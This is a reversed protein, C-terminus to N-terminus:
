EELPRSDNKMLKFYYSWDGTHIAELLAAELQQNMIDGTQTHNM